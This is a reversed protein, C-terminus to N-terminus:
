TVQRSIQLQGGLEAVEGPIGLRSRIEQAFM